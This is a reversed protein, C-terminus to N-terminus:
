DGDVGGSGSDLGRFLALEANLGDAVSDAPLANIKTRTQEYVYRVETRIKSDQERIRATVAEATDKIESTLQDSYRVELAPIVPSRNAWLYVISGALFAIVCVFVLTNKNM